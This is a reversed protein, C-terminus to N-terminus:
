CTATVKSKAAIFTVTPKCDKYATPLYAVASFACSSSDSFGHVVQSVPHEKSSSIARKVQIENLHETESILKMYCAKHTETLPSDWQAKEICPEQFFM